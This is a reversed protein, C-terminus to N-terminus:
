ALELRTFIKGKKEYEVQRLRIKGNEDFKLTKRNSVKEM